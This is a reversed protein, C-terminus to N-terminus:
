GEADQLEPGRFGFAVLRRRNPPAVTLPSNVFRGRRGPRYLHTKSLQERLRGHRHGCSNPGCFRKEGSRNALAREAHHPGQAKRAAGSFALLGKQRAPVRARRGPLCARSHVVVDMPPMASITSWGWSFSPGLRMSTIQPNRGQQSSPAGWYVAHGSYCKVHTWGQGRRGSTQVGVAEGGHEGRGGGGRLFTSAGDPSSEQFFSGAGNQAALDSSESATVAGHQQSIIV